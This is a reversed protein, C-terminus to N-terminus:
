AMLKTTVVIRLQNEFGVNKDVSLTIRVCVCEM